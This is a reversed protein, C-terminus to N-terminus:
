NQPECRGQRAQEIWGRIWQSVSASTVRSNVLYELAGLSFGRDMMAPEGYNSLIVVPPHNPLRTGRRCPGDIFSARLAPLASDDHAGPASFWYSVPRPLAAM